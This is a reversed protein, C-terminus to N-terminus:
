ELSPLLKEAKGKEEPSFGTEKAILEKVIQSVKAKHTWKSWPFQIPGSEASVVVSLLQIVNLLISKPLTVHASLLTHLEGITVAEWALYDDMVSNSFGGNVLWIKM